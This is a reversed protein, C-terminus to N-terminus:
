LKQDAELGEEHDWPIFDEDPDGAQELLDRFTGAEMASCLQDYQSLSMDKTSSLGLNTIYNRIDDNSVNSQKAIAFMRKIQKDSPGRTGQPPAEQAQAQPQIPKPAKADAQKHLAEAIQADDDEEAQIGLAACLTYRRMYSIYSGTEQPRQAIRIPFCGSRWQGSLHMLTTWLWPAGTEDPRIEQTYSLGNKALIPKVTEIIDALDAYTYEYTGMKAKKTKAITPFEGQAKSFAAAFLDIRDSQFRTSSGAEEQQTAKVKEQAKDLIPMESVKNM